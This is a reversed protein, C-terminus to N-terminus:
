RIKVNYTKSNFNYQMVLSANTNSEIEQPVEVMYWIKKTTLPDIDMYFSYQSLESGDDEEMVTIADYKYKGDYILKFSGLYISILLREHKNTVARM